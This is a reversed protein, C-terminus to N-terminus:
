LAKKAQRQFCFVSPDSEDSISSNDNLCAEKTVKLWYEAKCKQCRYKHGTKSIKIVTPTTGYETCVPCVTLVSNSM